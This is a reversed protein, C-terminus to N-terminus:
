NLFFFVIQYTYIYYLGVVLYLSIINHYMEITKIIQIQFNHKKEKIILCRCIKNNCKHIVNQM